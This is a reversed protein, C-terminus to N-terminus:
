KYIEHTSSKKESSLPIIEMPYFSDFATRSQFGTLKALTFSKLKTMDGAKNLNVWKGSPSKEPKLYDKGYFGWDEQVEYPLYYFYYTGAKKVPGFALRCRENTVSYRLINEITDGTSAEVIIFRKKQPDQDHRRWLIDLTAVQTARSIELVARHNGFSEPWLIEPVSYSPNKPKESQGVVTLSLLLISILIKM